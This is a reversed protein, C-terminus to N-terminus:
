VEAPIDRHVSTRHTIAAMVLDAISDVRAVEGHDAYTRDDPHAYYAIPLGRRDCDRCDLGVGADEDGSLTMRDLSSLDVRAMTVAECDVPRVMRPSCLDRMYTTYEEEEPFISVNAPFSESLEFTLPKVYQVSDRGSKAIVVKLQDLSFRYDEDVKAQWM